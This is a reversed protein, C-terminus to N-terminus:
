AAPVQSPLVVGAQTYARRIYPAAQKIVSPDPVPNRAGLFAQYQAVAGTADNDQLLLITGLYLHGAFDQPDLKVAREVLKRGQDKLTTSNGTTGVQYDLWGLQATAQAQNPNQSLIQNYLQSAQSFNGADEDVAAEALTQATKQQQSLTVNGTVTQGPLRPVAVLVVVLVIAASLTVVSGGLLFRQRRSRRPGTASAPSPVPSPDAPADEASSGAGATGVVATSSGAMVTASVAAPALVELAPDARELDVMQAQRAEIAELRSRDRRLLARYDEDSLDGADHEAEADALSRELFQRRDALVDANMEEDAVAAQDDPAFGRRRRRVMFLTLGGLAVVGAVLPLVWVLLSWGSKPPTLVISSGYRAVLYDDIQQDTRGAAVQAVIAARVTVATQANSDAVSLDECSPCKIGSAIAQVRQARTLPQSSFVGSGILLAVVLVVGLVVWILSRRRSRSSSNM